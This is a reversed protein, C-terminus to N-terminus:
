PKFIGIVGCALRTGSNGVTLSEANGGQGLDDQKEHIVLTRGLVTNKGFLPLQPIDYSKVIVGNQDSMINGMDGIHRVQSDFSGHNQNFPNFHAGAVTCNPFILGLQHVHAGHETNPKLGSLEVRVHTPGDRSEQNFVVVGKLGAGLPNTPDAIITVVAVRGNTNPQLIQAVTKGQSDAYKHTSSSFGNPRAVRIDKDYQEYDQVDNGQLQYEAYKNSQSHRHRAAVVAALLLNLFKM